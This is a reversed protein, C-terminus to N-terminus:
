LTPSDVHRAKYQNWLIECIESPSMTNTTDVHSLPLYIETSALSAHGLLHKLTLIGHPNNQM